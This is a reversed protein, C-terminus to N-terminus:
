LSEKEENIQNGLVLNFEFVGDVVQSIKKANFGLVTIQVTDNKVIEDGIFKVSILGSGKFAPTAITPIKRKHNKELISKGIFFWNEEEGGVVRIPIEVTKGPEIMVDPLDVGANMEVEYFTKEEEFRRQILDMLSSSKGKAIGSGAMAAGTAVSTVALVGLVKDATNSTNGVPEQEIAETPEGGMGMSDETYDSMFAHIVRGEEIVFPITVVNVMFDLENGNEDEGWFHDEAIGTLILIPDDLKDWLDTMEWGLDGHGSDTLYPTVRQNYTITGVMNKSGDNPRFTYEYELDYTIDMCREVECDVTFIVFLEQKIPELTLYGYLVTGDSKTFTTYEGNEPDLLHFLCLDDGVEVDFSYSGSRGILDEGINSTLIQDSGENDFGQINKFEFDLYPYNTRIQKGDLLTGGDIYNGMYTAGAQEEPTIGTASVYFGRMMLLVGVLSLFVYKM